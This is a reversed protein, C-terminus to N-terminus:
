RSAKARGAVSRIGDGYFVGNGRGAFSTEQSTVSPARWLARTNSVTVSTLEFLYVQFLGEQDALLELRNVPRAVSETIGLNGPTQPIRADTNYGLHAFFAAVADPGNLAQVDRPDIEVDVSHIISQDLNSL